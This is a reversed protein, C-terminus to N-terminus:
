SPESSVFLGPRTNKDVWEILAAKPSGPIGRVVVGVANDQPTGYHVFPFRSDGESLLMDHLDTLASLAAGPPMTAAVSEDALVITIDLAAKGDLDVTDAVRVEIVNSASIHKDAISRALKAVVEPELPKRGPMPTTM